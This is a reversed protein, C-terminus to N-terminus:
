RRSRDLLECIMELARVAAAERVKERGGPFIHREVTCQKGDDAAIFTLGVPKVESGGGPGAIGTISVGIDARGARRAGMAMEEACKSSVAGHAILTGDHVGLTDVKSRDSYTVFSALFYDSSGPVSTLMAGLLGGTCSEALAVAM